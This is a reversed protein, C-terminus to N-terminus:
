LNKVAKKFQRGRDEYNKFLDFSACAPSLLVTEGKRALQKAVHVAEAMSTTNVIMDVDSGFAEHLKRNDIGLCVIIRVKEKVMEKLLSYDNGKDVGGAIWVTPKEMSELAYWTSNVNTAKSDNIYEVGGTTIVSELRHEVNQFSILSERITEKRINLVQGIIAAAMSNYANHRGKLSLENIYMTFPNQNKQNINVLMEGNNVYAGIQQPKDYAFAIKQSHITHNIINKNTLEDDACYIFFDQATQNQTIKFKADIYKQLSYEYRDLHDPTINCLVAIDAKFQHFNDLQFSSIELVFYEYDRTALLRAMSTGINGGVAVDMGANKLLYYVLSTTTTKGNTGTIGIIKAKTYRSAFELENSIQIGKSKAEVLLPITDAIGPSKIIETANLILEPTHKGEEFEVNLQILEDKYNKAITGNDSVFVDFGHKKALMATGTGSEGSGLIVIRNSM